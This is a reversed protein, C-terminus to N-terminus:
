RRYRLLFTGGDYGAATLSFNGFADAASGCCSTMYYIDLREAPEFEGTVRGARAYRTYDQSSQGTVLYVLMVEGRRNAALHVFGGPGLDSPPSLEGGDGRAAKLGCEETAAGHDDIRCAGFVALARGRRDMVLGWGGTSLGATSVTQTPAWAGPLRWRARIRCGTPGFSDEGCEEWGVLAEGDRGPAAQLSPGDIRLGEGGARTRRAITRVRWRRAGPKRRAVRVETVLQGGSSRENTWVVWAGRHREAIVRVGSQDQVPEDAITRPSAFGRGARADLVQILRDPDHPRVVLWAGFRAGGPSAAVRLATRDRGSPEIRERRDPSAADRRLLATEYRVCCDTDGGYDSDDRFGFILTANGDGDIVTPGASGRGTACCRTAASSGAVIRPGFSGDEAVRQYIVESRDADDNWTPWGILTTGDAGVAVHGYSSFSSRPQWTGATAPAAVALVAILALSARV